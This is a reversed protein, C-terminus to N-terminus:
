VQRYKENHYDNDDVEDDIMVMIMTMETKLMLMVDIAAVIGSIECGECSSCYMSIINNANNGLSHTFSYFYMYPIQNQKARCACM